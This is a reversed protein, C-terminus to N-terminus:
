EPSNNRTKRAWGSSPMLSVHRNIPGADIRIQANASRGTSDIVVLRAFGAGPAQWMLQRQQGAALPQDDAMVTFPPVGGAIRVPIDAHGTGSAGSLEIRAGDPPYAFRPPPTSALLDDEAGPRSFRQLPLPLEALPTDTVSLAAPELPRGLRAFADFLLPAAAERGILGPVAAGDARGIWVAITTKDDFGIAWADRYGYSTGTKFSIRGSAAHDPAPAERLIAAIMRAAERTTVPKGPKTRSIEDLRLKLSPAFGGRAIGAYLAALDGLTVGGGGLAVPLGPRTGEPLRVPHGTETMRQVFAAPGVRELMMVAPVNLSHQLAERVSVEGRWSGSFNEPTWDGFREPKDSIRTAPRAYGQEFAMAYILPKLASGPSRVAEAMDVSGKRQTSGRAANAVRALVEGTANDIVLVAATTREGWRRAADLAVPELSKQLRADIALRITTGPAAQQALTQAAIHALRPLPKRRDPVAQTRAYDIAAQSFTGAELARDLVRDRAALAQDPYRDPRRAEPSQPLAVLLAAEALTLHRPEKGFWTLSAARVGEINGGFPAKLLYRSLIEDKTLARELQVAQVAQRLKGAVNRTAASNGLRAVQMTLTSAGSVIEGNRLMQWAARLGAKWDIGAHDRFRKDEYAILLRLYDPDVGDLEVPLRWHGTQTLFPSLLTGRRDVVMTSTVPEALSPQPTTHLLWAAGGGAACAALTCAVTAAIATRKLKRPM